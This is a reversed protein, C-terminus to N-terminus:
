RVPVFVSIERLFAEIHSDLAPLRIATRQVSPYGGVSYTVLM